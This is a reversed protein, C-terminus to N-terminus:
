IFQIQNWEKKIIIDVTNGTLLQNAKAYKKYHNIITSIENNKIKYKKFIKQITDGSKIQYNINIFPSQIKSFLFNKVKTLEKAPLYASKEDVKEKTTNDNKFVVTLLLSFVIVFTFVIFYKVKERSRRLIQYM